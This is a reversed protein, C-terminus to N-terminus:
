NQKTSKLYFAEFRTEFSVLAELSGLCNEQEIVAVHMEDLGVYFEAPKDSHKPMANSLVFSERLIPPVSVGGSSSM